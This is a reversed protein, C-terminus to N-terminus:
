ESGTKYEDAVNQTASDENEVGKKGKDLNEPPMPAGGPPGIREIEDEIELLTQDFEANTKQHLRKAAGRRSETGMQVESLVRKSLRNQDELSYAPFKLEYKVGLKGSYFLQRDFLPRLIEYEELWHLGGITRKGREEMREQMQGTVRKAARFGSLSLSTGFVLELRDIALHVDELSDLLAQKNNFATFKGGKVWLFEDPSSRRRQLYETQTGDANNVVVKEFFSEEFAKISEPTADKDFEVGYPNRSALNRDIVLDYLISQVANYALRASRMVITGYGTQVPKFLPMRRGHIIEEAAFWISEDGRKKFGYGAMQGIAGPVRSPAAYVEAGTASVMAGGYGPSILDIDTLQVFADKLSRLGGEPTSNRFMTYEPLRRLGVIERLNRKSFPAPDYDVKNFSDGLAWLLAVQEKRMKWYQIRELLDWLEKEARADDCRIDFPEVTADEAGRLLASEVIESECIAAWQDRYDAFRGQEIAFLRWREDWAAQRTPRTMGRDIYVMQSTETAGAAAPDGAWKALSIAAARRASAWLSGIRSM